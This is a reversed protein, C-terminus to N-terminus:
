QAQSQFEKFCQEWLTIQPKISENLNALRDIGLEGIRKFMEIDLQPSANEYWWIHRKMRERYFESSGQEHIDPLNSALDIVGKPMTAYCPEWAAYLEADGHKEAVEKMHLREEHVLYRPGTLSLAGPQDPDKSIHELEILQDLMFHRALWALPLLPVKEQIGPKWPIDTAYMTQTKLISVKRPTGDDNFTGTDRISPFLQYGYNHYLVSATLLAVPRVTDRFFDGLLADFERKERSQHWRPGILEPDHIIEELRVIILTGSSPRM